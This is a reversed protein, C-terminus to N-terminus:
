IRQPLNYELGHNEISNNEPKRAEPVSCITQMWFMQIPMSNNKCTNLPLFTDLSLYHVTTNACLEGRWDIGRYFSIKVLGTKLIVERYKKGPHIIHKPVEHAALMKCGKVSGIDQSNYSLIYKFGNRDLSLEVTRCNLSDNNFSVLKQRVRSTIIKEDTIRKYISNKGNLHLVVRKISDANFRIVINVVSTDHSVKQKMTPKDASNDHFVPLGPLINLNNLSLNKGSTILNISLFVIILVIIKKM